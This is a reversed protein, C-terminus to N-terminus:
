WFARLLATSAAGTILALTMSRRTFLVLAGLGVGLLKTLAIVDAQQRHAPVLLTAILSAVIAAGSGGLAAQIRHPLRYRAMAVPVAVRLSISACASVIILLWRYSM